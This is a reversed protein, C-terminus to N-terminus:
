WSTCPSSCRPALSCGGGVRARLLREEVSSTTSCWSLAAGIVPLITGYAVFSCTGISSGWTDGIGQYQTLSAYLMCQGETGQSNAWDKTTMAMPIMGMLTFIIILVLLLPAVFSSLTVEDQQDQWSQTTPRYAAKYGSM